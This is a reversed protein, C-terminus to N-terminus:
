VGHGFSRTARSSFFSAASAEITALLLAFLDVWGRVLTGATPHQSQLVRSARTLVVLVPGTVLSRAVPLSSTTM